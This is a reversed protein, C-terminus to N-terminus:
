TYDKGQRYSVMLSPIMHSFSNNINVYCIVIQPKSVIKQYDLHRSQIQIVSWYNKTYGNAYTYSLVMKDNTLNYNGFTVVVHVNIRDWQM